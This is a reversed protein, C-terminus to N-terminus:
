GARTPADQLDADAIYAGVLKTEELLAGRLDANNLQAIELHARSLDVDAFGVRYLHSRILNTDGLRTMDSEAPRPTRGLVTLAAQADYARVAFFPVDFLKRYYEEFADGSAAAPPNEITNSGSAGVKAHGRVFSALLEIIARRDFRSDRMIRELAYIAATRVDINSSALQGAAQTHRDTIQGQRNLQYTRGTYALGSLAAAGGLAGLLTARVSDMLELHRVATMGAGSARTPIVPGLWVAFVVIFVAALAVAGWVIVERTGRLVSREM